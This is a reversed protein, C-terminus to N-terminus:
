LPKVQVFQDKARVLRLQTSESEITDYAYTGSLHKRAGANYQKLAEIINGKNEVEYIHLVEVGLFTGYDIEQMRSLDINLVKYWVPYMVQMVGVAGVPSVAFPNHRSENYQINIILSPTIKPYKQGYKWAADLCESINQNKKKYYDEKFKLRNIEANELLLKENQVKMLLNNSIMLDKHRTATVTKEITIALLSGMVIIIGILFFVLSNQGNIWKFRSQEDM